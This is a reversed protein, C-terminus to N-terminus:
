HSANEKDFLHNFQAIKALSARIQLDIRSEEEHRELVNTHRYLWALAEGETTDLTILRTVDQASLANDLQALLKDMGQGTIASVPISPTKARPASEQLADQAPQDLLDTKNWVEWVPTHPDLEM